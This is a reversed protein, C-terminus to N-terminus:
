RNSFVRRFDAIVSPPTIVGSQPIHLLSTNPSLKAVVTGKLRPTLAQTITPSHSEVIAETSLLATKLREIEYGEGDMKM